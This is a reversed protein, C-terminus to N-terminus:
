KIEGKSIARVLADIEGESLNALATELRETPGARPRPQDLRHHEKYARYRANYIAVRVEYIGMTLNVCYQLMDQHTPRLPLCLPDAITRLATWRADILEREESTITAFWPPEHDPDNHSEESM